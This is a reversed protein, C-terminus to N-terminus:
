QHPLFGSRSYRARLGEYHGIVSKPQYEGGEAHKKNNRVQEPLVSHIDYQLRSVKAREIQRPMDVPYRYDM